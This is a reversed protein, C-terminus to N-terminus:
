RRQGGDTSPPTDPDDITSRTCNPGGPLGGGILRVFADAVQSSSHASRVYSVGASSLDRVRGPSSALHIVASRLDDPSDFLVCARSRRAFERHGPSRALLPVCGRAMAEAASIPGTEIASASVYVEHMDYWGFRNSTTRLDNLVRIEVQGTAELMSPDSPTCITLSSVNAVSPDNWVQLLWDVRKYGGIRGLYLAKLRSDDSRSVVPHFADAMLPTPLYHSTWKSYARVLEAAAAGNNMAVVSIRQNALPAVLKVLDATSHGEWEPLIVVKQKQRSEIHRIVTSAQGMERPVGCWVEVDAAPTGTDFWGLQLVSLRASKRLASVLAEAYLLLGSDRLDPPCRIDVHIRSM